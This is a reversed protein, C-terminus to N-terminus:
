APRMERNALAPVAAGVALLVGALGELRGVWLRFRPVRSM